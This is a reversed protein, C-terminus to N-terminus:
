IWMAIDALAGKLALDLFSLKDLKFDKNVRKKFSKLDKIITTKRDM